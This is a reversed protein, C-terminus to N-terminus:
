KTNSMSKSTKGMESSIQATESQIEGVEDYYWNGIGMYYWRNLSNIYVFNPQIDYGCEGPYTKFEHLMIHGVAIKAGGCRITYEGSEPFLIQLRSNKKPDPLILEGKPVMIVNLTDLDLNCKYKMFEKIKKM